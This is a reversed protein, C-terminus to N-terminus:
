TLTSGPDYTYPQGNVQQEVDPKEAKPLFSKIFVDLVGKTGAIRKNIM